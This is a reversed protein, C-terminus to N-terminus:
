VRLPRSASAKLPKARGSDASASEPRACLEAARGSTSSCGTSVSRWSPRLLWASGPSPSSAVRSRWARDTTAESRSRAVFGRAARCRSLRSRSRRGRRPDRVRRPAARLERQLAHSLGRGPDDRGVRARRVVSGWAAGSSSSRASSSSTRVVLPPPLFPAVSSEPSPSSRSPTRCAGRLPDLGVDLVDPPQRLARELVRVPPVRGGRRLAALERLDVRRARHVRAGRDHEPRVDGRLRALPVRRRRGRAHGLADVAGYRVAYVNIGVTDAARPHEGVSRIRLGIPTKFVVIWVAVVLLFGVWIMLNLQGFVDDLFNGLM